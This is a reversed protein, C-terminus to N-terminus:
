PNWTVPEQAVSLANIHYYYETMDSNDEYSIANLELIYDTGSYPTQKWGTDSTKITYSTSDGNIEYGQYLIDGNYTVMNVIYGESGITQLWDVKITKSVDNYVVSTIEPITMYNAPLYDYDEFIGGLTNQITFYYQGSEPETLSFDNKNPVRAFTTQTNQFSELSASIGDGDPIIVEASAIAYNSYAYFALAYKVTDNIEKQILFVEPIAQFEKTEKPDENCSPFILVGLFFLIPLKLRIPLQM